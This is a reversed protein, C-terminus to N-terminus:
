STFHWRRLDGKAVVIYTGGNRANVLAGVPVDELAIEYLDGEPTWGWCTSSSDAQQDFEEGTPRTVPTNSAFEEPTRDYFGKM